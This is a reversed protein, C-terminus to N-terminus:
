WGRYGQHLKPIPITHDYTLHTGRTCSFIAIKEFNVDAALAVVKGLETAVIPKPSYSIIKYVGCSGQM